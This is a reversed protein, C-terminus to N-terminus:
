LRRTVLLGAMASAKRFSCCNNPPSGALVPPFIAIVSNGIDVQVKDNLTMVFVLLHYQALPAFSSVQVLLDRLEQLRQRNKRLLDLVGFGPSLAETSLRCDVTSLLDADPALSCLKADSNNVSIKNYGKHLRRRFLCYFM